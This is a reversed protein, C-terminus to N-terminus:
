LTQEACPKPWLAQAPVACAGQFLSRICVWPMLVAAMARHPEQTQPAMDRDVVGRNCRM